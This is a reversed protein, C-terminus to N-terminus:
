AIPVDVANDMPDKFPVSIKLLSDEYSAQVGSANVPCCFASSTVYDFDERPAILDFREENIKLKISEKKVGPLAIELNLKGTADDVFSCVEAPMKYREEAM